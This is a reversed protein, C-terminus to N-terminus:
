ARLTQSPLEGFRKRYAQAFRGLHTFGQGYAIAGVSADTSSNVLEDHVRQLRLERLYETPSMGVYRSFGEQLSRISCGAAEALETVTFQREPEAEFLEVARRVMRPAAPKFGHALAESYNHEHSMLLGTLILDVLQNRAEPMMSLGNDEADACALDVLRRWSRAQPTSLDMGLEFRLPAILDHGLLRRLREEAVQRAVYVLLHPSTAHWRMSLPQTPNPVSALNVNSEITQRGNTITSGGTLPMQVLFFSNLPGPDIDVPVGYDLFNLGIDGLDLRNHVTQVASTGDVTTLEHPCFVRAVQERADDLSRTRFLTHSGLLEATMFADDACHWGRDVPKVIGKGSPGSMPRANQITCEDSPM